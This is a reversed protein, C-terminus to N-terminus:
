NDDDDDNDGAPHVGGPLTRHMIPMVSDPGKITKWVIQDLELAPAADAHTFDMKESELAMKRRPDGASLDSVKPNREAIMVPSAAIADYPAANSPSDDWDMIPDAVADYQSMPGLGLILEITKLM